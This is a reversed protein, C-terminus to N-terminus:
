LLQLFKQTELLEAKLKERKAEAEEDIGWKENQYLEDAISCEFAQAVDLRGEIVAIALLLSSFGAGLDMLAALQWNNYGELKFAINEAAEESQDGPMIGEFIELKCTFTEETWDIIPQWHKREFQQLEPDESMYCITDTHLYAIMSEIIISRAEEVQDIATYALKKLTGAKQNNRRQPANEANESDDAEGSEDNAAKPASFDAAVAEALQENPFVLDNRKPTLMVEGDRTLAVGYPHEESYIPALQEAKETMM